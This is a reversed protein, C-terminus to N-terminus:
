GEEAPCRCVRCVEEEEDDDDDPLSSVGVSSDDASNLATPIELLEAALEM